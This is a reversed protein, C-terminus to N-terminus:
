AESLVHILRQALIHEDVPLTMFETAAETWRYKEFINEKEAVVIVPVHQMFKTCRMQAQIADHLIDSVSNQIFIVNPKWMEIIDLAHLASTSFVCDLGHPLASKLSDVVSSNQAIVLVRADGREQIHQIM